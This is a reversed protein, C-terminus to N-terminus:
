GAVRDMRSQCILEGYSGIDGSLNGGHHGKGARKGWARGGKRLWKGLGEEDEILISKKWRGENEEWCSGSKKVQLDDDWCLTIERRRTVSSIWISMPYTQEKLREKRGQMPSLLLDEFACSLPKGKEKWCRNQGIVSGQFKYQLMSVRCLFCTHDCEYWLSARSTQSIKAALSVAIEVWM